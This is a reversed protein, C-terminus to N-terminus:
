ILLNIVLLLSIHRFCCTSSSPSTIVVGILLPQSPCDCGFCRSFLIIEFINCNNFRGLASYSAVGKSSSGETSTPSAKSDAACSVMDFVAFLALIVLLATSQRNM